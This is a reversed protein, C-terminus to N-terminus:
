CYGLGCLIVALLILSLLGAFSWFMIAAWVFQGRWRAIMTALLFGAMLLYIAPNITM